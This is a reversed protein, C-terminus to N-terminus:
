VNLFFMLADERDNGVPYYGKRVGIQSFGCSEYLQIAAINSARVELVIRMIKSAKVHNILHKLLRKGLGGRWSNSYVGVNMLQCELGQCLCIIFGRVIQKDKETIVWGLYDAALCDVFVRYTWHNNQFQEAISVVQPLDKETLSRIVYGTMDIPAGKINEM